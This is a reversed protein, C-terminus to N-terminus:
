IHPERRPRMAVTARHEPVNGTQLLVALSAILPLKNEALQHPTGEWVLRGEQIIGIRNALTEVEQVDHSSLFITLGADRLEALHNWIAHRSPIDLERTPEDLFLLEPEHLLARAIEVKRKNGGSLKGIPRSAYEELQLTELVAHIRQTAHANTLGQMTAWHRLYRAPSWRPEPALNDGFVVGIRSTLKPDTPKDGLVLAEGRTPLLTGTLIRLTTSKGAGNLGLYCYTEGPAIELDLTQLATVNGYDHGLGRTQIVVM